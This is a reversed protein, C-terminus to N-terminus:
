AQRLSFGIQCAGGSSAAHRTAAHVRRLTLDVHAHRANFLGTHMEFVRLPLLLTIGLKQFGIGNRRLLIICNVRGIERGLRPIFLSQALTTRQRRHLGLLVM